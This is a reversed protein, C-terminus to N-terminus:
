GWFNLAGSLLLTFSLAVMATLAVAVYPELETEVFRHRRGGRPLLAWFAAFTAGFVVVGGLMLNM